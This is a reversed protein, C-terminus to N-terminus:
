TEPAYLPLTIDEGDEDVFLEAIFECGAENFLEWLRNYVLIGVEIGLNTPVGPICWPALGSENVDIVSLRSVKADGAVEYEIEVEYIREGKYLVGLTDIQETADVSLDCGSIMELAFDAKNQVTTEITM